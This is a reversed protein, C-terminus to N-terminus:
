EKEGYFCEGRLLINCKSPSLGLGCYFIQKGQFAHHWPLYAELLIKRFGVVGGGERWLGIKAYKKVTTKQGRM